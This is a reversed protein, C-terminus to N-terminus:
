IRCSSWGARQRGTKLPHKTKLSHRTKLPRGTMVPRGTMLPHETKLPRQRSVSFSKTPTTTRSNRSCVPLGIYPKRHHHVGVNILRRTLLPSVTISVEYTPPTEVICGYRRFSFTLMAPKTDETQEKSTNQEKPRKQEKSGKKRSRKEKDVGFREREEKNMKRHVTSQNRRYVFVHDPKAPDRAVSPLHQLTTM